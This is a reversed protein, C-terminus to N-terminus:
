RSLDAQKGRHGFPQGALSLALDRLRTRADAEFTKAGQARAISLAQHLEAEVAALEVRAAGALIEARMRHLPSLLSLDSCERAQVIAATPRKWSASEVISM